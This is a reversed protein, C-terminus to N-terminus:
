HIKSGPSVEKQPILFVPNDDGALLIMGQSELGMLKRPELNATVVVQQGVLDKPDYWAKIGALVQRPNEEGLDIQFKILKDSGEVSEASLITGVKLEVKAFDDFNMM